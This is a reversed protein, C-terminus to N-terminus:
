LFALIPAGIVTVALMCLAGILLFPLTHILTYLVLLIIVIGALILVGYGLEDWYPPAVKLLHFAM